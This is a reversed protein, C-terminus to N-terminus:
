NWPYFNLGIGIQYIPSSKDFYVNFVTYPNFIWEHLYFIQKFSVSSIFTGPESFYSINAGLLFDVRNRKYIYWDVLRVESVFSGSYDKYKGYDTYGGTMYIYFQRNYIHLGAGGSVMQGGGFQLPFFFRPFKETAREYGMRYILTEIFEKNGRNILDEIISELFKEQETLDRELKALYDKQQEKLEIKQAHLMSSSILCVAILFLRNLRPM